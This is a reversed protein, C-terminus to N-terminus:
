AKGTEIFDLAAVKVSIDRGLLKSMSLKHQLINIWLEYINKDEIEKGLYMKIMDPYFSERDREVRIIVYKYADETIEYDKFRVDIVAFGQKLLSDFNIQIDETTKTM